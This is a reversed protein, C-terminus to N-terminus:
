ITDVRTHISFMLLLHLLLSLSSSSSLNDLCLLKITPLKSVVNWFAVCLNVVCPILDPLTNRFFGPIPNVHM